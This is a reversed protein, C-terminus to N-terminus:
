NEDWKRRRELYCKLLVYLLVCLDWSMSKYLTECNVSGYSFFNDINKLSIESFKRNNLINLLNVGALTQILYQKMFSYVFNMFSPFLLLYKCPGEPFQDLGEQFTDWNKYFRM